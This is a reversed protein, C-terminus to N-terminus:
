PTGVRVDISTTAGSAVVVGGPYGPGLNGQTSTGLAIGFLVGTADACLPPTNASKYYIKDGCNIAVNGSANVGQVPLNYVGLTDITQPTTSSPTGGPYGPLLTQGNESVGPLQGVLCPDGANVGGSTPVLALQRGRIRTRNGAM